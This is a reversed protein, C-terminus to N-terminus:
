SPLRHHLWHCERPRHTMLLPPHELECDQLLLYVDMIQHMCHCMCVSEANKLIGHETERRLIALQAYRRSFKSAELRARLKSTASVNLYNQVTQIESLRHMFRSAKIGQPCHNYLRSELPRLQLWNSKCNIQLSKNAEALLEHM